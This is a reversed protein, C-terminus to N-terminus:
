ERHVIREWTQSHPNWAVSVARGRPDPEALRQLGDEGLDVLAQLAADPIDSPVLFELRGQREEIVILPGYIHGDSRSLRERITTRAADFTRQAAQTAITQLFPVLGVATALAAVEVVGSPIGRVLSYDVPEMPFVPHGLLDHWRRDGLRAIDRLNEATSRVDADFSHREPSGQAPRKGYAEDLWSKLVAPRVVEAEELVGPPASKPHAVAGMLTAISKM